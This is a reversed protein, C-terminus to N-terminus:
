PDAATLTARVSSREALTGRFVLDGGPGCMDEPLSPMGRTDGTVTTSQGGAAGIQLPIAKTCDTGAPRTTTPTATVTLLYPPNINSGFIPGVSARIFYTGPGVFVSSLKATRNDHSDEG